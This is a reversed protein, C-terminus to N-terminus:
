LASKKSTGYTKESDLRPKALKLAKESARKIPNGTNLATKQLFNVKLLSLKSGNQDGLSASFSNKGGKLAARGAWFTKKKESVGESFM